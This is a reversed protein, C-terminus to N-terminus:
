LEVVQSIWAQPVHIATDTPLGTVTAPTLTDSTGTGIGTSLTTAFLSKYKHLKDNISAAM